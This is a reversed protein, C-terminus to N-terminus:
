QEGSERAFREGDIWLGLGPNPIYYIEEGDPLTNYGSKLMEPDYRRLTEDLDLSTYGVRTMAERM